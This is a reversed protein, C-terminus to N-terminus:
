IPGVISGRASGGFELSRNKFLIKDSFSSLHLLFKPSFINYLNFCNLFFIKFVLYKAKQKQNSISSVLFFQQFSYLTIQLKLINRLTNKHQPWSNEWQKKNLILALFAHCISMQSNRSTKNRESELIPFRHKSCICSFVLLTQCWHRLHVSLNTLAHVLESEKERRRERKRCREREREGERERERERMRCREIERKKKVETRHKPRLSSFACTGPLASITKHTNEVPQIIAWTKVEREREREREGREWNSCWRHSAFTTVTKQPWVIQPSHARIGARARLITRTFM